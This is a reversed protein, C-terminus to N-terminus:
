SRILSRSPKVLELEVWIRPSVPGGTRRRASTFAQGLALAARPSETWRDRLAHMLRDLLDEWAASADDSADAHRAPADLAAVADGPTAAGLLADVTRGAEAIQLREDADELWRLARGPHGDAIRVAEHRMTDDVKKEVLLADIQSAPVPALTFSVVRSRITAPLRSADRAVLVFVAGAAPEELSKLLANAGADNLRDAEPLYAVMRQAVVPRQSLRARAAHVAEVSIVNKSGEEGSERSLVVADPHGTLPQTPNMELLARVFREALAHAGLGRGGILLYAHHPKARARELAQVVARHGVIDAFPDAKM